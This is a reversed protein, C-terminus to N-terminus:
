TRPPIVDDPLPRPGTKVGRATPPRQITKGSVETVASGRSEYEAVIKKLRKVQAELESRKSTMGVVASMERIRRWLNQQELSPAPSTAMQRLCILQLKRVYDLDTAPNDLDPEGAKKFDKAWIHDDGKARITGLAEARAEERERRRKRKQAGSLEKKAAPAEPAPLPAEDSLRDM